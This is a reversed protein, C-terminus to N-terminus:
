EEIDPEDGWYGIWVGSVHQTWGPQSRTMTFENTRTFRLKRQRFWRFLKSEFEKRLAEYAPATGLDNREQPDNKMDYLEPRFKEHLIYKWRKTRLMTARADDISLGMHHRVTLPGYDEECVVFERWGNVSEGRIFPMLSHGELREPNPTGGAFDICTPVIDISEVLEDCITGRTSDASNSPDYIILPIRVAEEHFWYKDVLWHDGLYDGHDSTFIIMTNELIGNDRMWSLLRGLHDDVQKILGMYTPIVTERIEDRSFGEGGCYKLHGAYVPHHPNAREEETRNAPLVHEPGYMNHYPAPAVYPWHPKIYGLHLCWPEDGAETMFEIARNTMYPTESHEEKINAPYKANKNYWGNQVNGEDDVVSNAYTHWPNEAEYGLSQLYQNYRPHKNTKRLITTPHLGPDRDFPEFGVERTLTNEETSLDINLREATVTDPRLDTKGAVATRVGLPRLYDGLGLEDIRLPYGNHRVGLTSQYRGTYFCARSPGCVPSQVYARDFRVGNEALWDINPTELHPHGYCSLYDWRLQDCMIFLINKAQPM